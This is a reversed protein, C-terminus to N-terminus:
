EKTEDKAKVDDFNFSLTFRLTKELPNNRNMTVLYSFDLNFISYRLGAGVTVYQRNGKNPSEYFWGARLAFQKDYWYEMGLSWNIETFEEKGGGPADYFSQLMGTPVSVDPNKGKEIVPNGEADYILSLNEDKAYLPPTPVLLKNLDIYFALQNFKDLDLNLGNGIKLNIPIFDREASESYAVRNGINQINLGFTYLAEYKGVKTPSQYFVNLDAAIARASKSDVGGLSVGRTINSNVFRLAFGGSLKKSLQHGYGADISYEYPTVDQIPNGVDDTFNIEGLSFYRLSATVAGKESLKKFGSLYLLHIDPVISRLWPVYSFALGADKQVFAAKATNWYSSNPDPTTAAGVDGMAGARSDPSILLFPVATTITNLGISELQDDVSQAMTSQGFFIAFVVLSYQTFNIRSKM